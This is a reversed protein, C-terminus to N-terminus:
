QVFFTTQEGLSRRDCISGSQLKTFDGVSKLHGPNSLDDGHYGHSSVDKARIWTFLGPELGSGDPAVQSTGPISIEASHIIM